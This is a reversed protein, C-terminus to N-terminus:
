YNEALICIKKDFLRAYKKATFFHEHSREFIDEKKSINM